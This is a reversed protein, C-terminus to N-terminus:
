YPQSRIMEIEAVEGELGEQQYGKSGKSSNLSIEKRSVEM